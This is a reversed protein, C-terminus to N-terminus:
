AEEEESGITDSSEAVFHRSDVFGSYQVMREYELADARRALEARTGPLLSSALWDLASM